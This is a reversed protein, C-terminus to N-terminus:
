KLLPHLCHFFHDGILQFVAQRDQVGSPFLLHQLLPQFPNLVRNIPFVILLVQHM